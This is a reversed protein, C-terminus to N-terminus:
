TEVDDGGGSLGVDAGRGGVWCRAAKWLGRAEWALTGVNDEM